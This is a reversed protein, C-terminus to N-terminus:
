LILEIHFIWYPMRPRLCPSFIMHFSKRLIYWQQTVGKGFLWIRSSFRPLWSIRDPWDCGSITISLYSIFEVLSAPPPLWDSSIWDSSIWNESGRTSGGFSSSRCKLVLSGFTMDLHRPLHPFGMQWKSITYEKTSCRPFISISSFLVLYWGFNGPFINSSNQCHFTRHAM